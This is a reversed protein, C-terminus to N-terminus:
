YQVSPEWGCNNAPISLHERNSHGSYNLKIVIVLYIPSILQLPHRFSWRVLYWTGTNISHFFFAVDLFNNHGQEITGSDLLRRCHTSQWTCLCYCNGYNWGLHQTRNAYWAAQMSNFSTDDCSQCSHIGLSTRPNARHGPRSTPQGFKQSHFDFILYRITKRRYPDKIRESPYVPTCVYTYM